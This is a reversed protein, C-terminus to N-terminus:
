SSCTVCLKAAWAPPKGDFKLQVSTPCSGAEAAAGAAAEAAGQQRSGIAAAGAAAAVAPPVTLTADTSYPKRLLSLVDAVTSYQGLEAARIATQAVWNRLVVRPNSANMVAIRLEPPVGASILPVDTPHAPQAQMTM